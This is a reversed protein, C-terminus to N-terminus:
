QIFKKAKFLMFLTTVLGLISYWPYMKALKILMPSNKYEELFEYKNEDKKHYNIITLLHVCSWVIFIMISSFNSLTKLVGKGMLVCVFSVVSLTLLANIPMNEFVKNDEDNEKPKIGLYKPLDSIKKLYEPAIELEAFKKLLRSGGLLSFLITSLMCVVSMITTINKGKEGAIVAFSQSFPAGYKAANKLGIISIISISIVVYLLTSFSISSVMAKAVNEKNDTEESMQVLGQFGFFAFISVFTGKTINMLNDSIKSDFFKIENFYKNHKTATGMILAFLVTISSMIVKNLGSTYKTGIINVFTPVFIALFIVLYQNFNVGLLKLFDKMGVSVTAISAIVCIMVIWILIFAGGKAFKNRFSDGSENKNGIIGKFWSYEADNVPYEMNLRIFSFGTLISIIGGIIFAMWSYGKSHNIIFGMLTFIGAGVILSYGAFTLDWFNLNRDLKDEKKTNKNNVLKDNM